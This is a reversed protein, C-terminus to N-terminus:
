TDFGNAIGVIGIALLVFLLWRGGDPEPAIWPFTISSGLQLSFPTASDSVGVQVSHGARSVGASKRADLKAAV